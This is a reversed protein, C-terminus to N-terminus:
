KSHGASVDQGPAPWQPRADHEAHDSDSGDWGPRERRRSEAWLKREGCRAARPEREQVVREHGRQVKGACDGM